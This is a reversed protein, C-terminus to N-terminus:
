FVRVRSLPASSAADVVIGHLTKGATVKLLVDTSKGDTVNLSFVARGNSVNQTDVHYLPVPDGELKLDYHKSSVNGFDFHAQPGATTTYRFFFGDLSSNAQLTLTATTRTLDIDDSVITGKVAPAADALAIKVSDRPAMTEHLELVGSTPKVII